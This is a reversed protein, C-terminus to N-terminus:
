SAIDDEMLVMAAVTVLVVELSWFKGQMSLYLLGALWDAIDGALVFRFALYLRAVGVLCEVLLNYVSSGM